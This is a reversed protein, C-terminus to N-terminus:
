GRRLCVVYGTFLVDLLSGGFVPELTADLWERIEQEATGNRIAAAVNTESMLYAAYAAATMPHSLTLDQRAALRFGSAMRTISLGDLPIAEQPPAAYRREFGTFWHGLLPNAAAERGQSFDYACFVGGPTLVRAAEAFVRAPDAYNLSGAATMFAVSHSRLPLAEGRAAVVLANPALDRAALVMSVAPDIGIAIRSVPLLPLLSMGAGCGIDLAVPCPEDLGLLELATRVIPGHLPPRSSAYGRAMAATSFPNDAM